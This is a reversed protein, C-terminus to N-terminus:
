HVNAQLPLKNPNIARNLTIMIHYIYILLCLLLLVMFAALALCRIKWLLWVLIVKKGLIALFYGFERGFGGTLMLLRKVGREILM